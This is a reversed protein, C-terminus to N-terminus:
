SNSLAFLRFWVPAANGAPDAERQSLWLQLLPSTSALLFFPVGITRALTWFITLVPHAASGAKSGLMLGFSLSMLALTVVFTHTRRQYAIDAARSGSTLWHAYLYGLLLTTQFFVLCTLWVASSGGLIPLLQKAALPEIVFLLFASLFATAGYLIRNSPM